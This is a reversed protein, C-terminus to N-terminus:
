HLRLFRSFTVLGKKGQSLAPDGGGGGEGNMWWDDHMFLRPATLIRIRGNTVPGSAENGDYLSASHVALRRTFDKSPWFSPELSGGRDGVGGGGQRCAQRIIANSTKQQQDCTKQLVFPFQSHTASSRGIYIERCISSGLNM